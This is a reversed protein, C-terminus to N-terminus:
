HFSWLRGDQPDPLQFLPWAQGHGERDLFRSGRASCSFIGLHADEDEVPEKGIARYLGANTILELRREPRKMTSCVALYGPKAKGETKGETSSKSQTQQTIQEMFSVKKNGPVPANQVSEREFKVSM